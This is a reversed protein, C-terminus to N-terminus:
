LPKHLLVKRESSRLRIGEAPTQCPRHMLGCGDFAVCTLAFRAAPLALRLAFTTRNGGDSSHGHNRPKGASTEASEGATKGQHKRYRGNCGPQRFEPFPSTRTNLSGPRLSSAVLTGAPEVLRPAFAYAKGPQEGKAGTM